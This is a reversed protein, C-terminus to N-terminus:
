VMLYIIMLFLALGWNYYAMASYSANSGLYRMIVCAFWAGVFAAAAALVSFLVMTGSIGSFGMAILTVGDLVVLMALAPVSVLFGIDLIYKKDCGRLLGASLFLGIRSIGPFMSCGSLLGLGVAELPTMHRSDRNAGPQFQPLYVAIGSIALLLSLLPMSDIKTYVVNSFALCIVLPIACYIAIKGDLVTMRDPQRKRKSPAQWELHLERRMHGIRHRCQILVAALAAVHILLLMLPHRTDLATLEQLVFGQAAASVPLFEALGSVLGYFIYFIIKGTM